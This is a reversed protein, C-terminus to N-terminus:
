LYFTSWFAKKINSIKCIKTCDVDSHIRVFIDIAFYICVHFKKDSRMNCERYKSCFKWVRIKKNWFGIYDSKERKQKIRFEFVGSNKWVISGNGVVGNRAETRFVNEFSNTKQVEVILLDEDVRPKNGIFKLANVAMDSIYWIIPIHRSNERDILVWERGLGGAM